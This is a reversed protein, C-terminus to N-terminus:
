RTSGVPAVLRVLHPAIADIELVADAGAIELAALPMPPAIAGSPEQVIAYGGHERIRRLGLAGDGNAGTLVVGIARPGYAEAVSEFLVDISPRSFVVPADVSLAFASGDVLLHYDAPALYVRGPAITEKDEAESLPLRSHEQLLLPLADGSDKSRHQVIVIAAGFREPIGELITSLAQLGGFSTGFLVLEYAM